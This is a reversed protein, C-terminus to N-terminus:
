AHGAQGQVAHKWAKETLSKRHRIGPSRGSRTVRFASAVRFLSALPSPFARDELAVCVPRKPFTANLSPSKTQLVYVKRDLSKLILEPTKAM